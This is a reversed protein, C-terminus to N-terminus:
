KTIVIKGKCNDNIRYLYLGQNLDISIKDQKPILTTKLIEQGLVNSLYFNVPSNFGDVILYDTAPNPYVSILSCDFNGIESCKKVTVTVMESNTYCSFTNAIDTVTLTYQTTTSPNALPSSSIPNDLGTVPTWSYILGPVPPSGIYVGNDPNNDSCITKNEGASAKYVDYATLNYNPMNPMNCTAIASDGVYFSFPQFGCSTDLSNPYNIVCLNTTMSDAQPHNPGSARSYPLYIKGDPALKLQGTAYNSYLHLYDDDWIMKNNSTLINYQWLESRLIGTYNRMRALYLFKENPSFEMGYTQYLGNKLVVKHNSLLGTCRDFNFLDVKGTTYASYAMLNGSQSFCSYGDPYDYGSPNVNPHMSGIHQFYPGSIGSSTVLLTIFCNSTSIDNEDLFQHKMLWWDKGNGHKVCSIGEEVQYPMVLSNKILVIGDTGVSMDVLSMFLRPNTWNTDGSFGTYFVYYQDPHDPRPIIIAGREFTSNINISDGGPIIVNNGNYLSYKFFSSYNSTSGLYILLKGSTDSICTAVEYSNTLPYFTKPNNLDNFDIGCRYGFAWNRDQKQAFCPM